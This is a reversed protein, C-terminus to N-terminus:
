IVSSSILRGVRRRSSVLNVIVICSTVKMALISFHMHATKHFGHMTNPKHPIRGGRELRPPPIIIQLATWHM